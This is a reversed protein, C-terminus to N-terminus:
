KEPDATVKARAGVKSGSGSTSNNSGISGKKGTQTGAQSAFAVTGLSNLIKPAYHIALARVAPASSCILALNLETITWANIVLMTFGQADYNTYQELMALRYCSAVCAIAGLSFTLLALLRERPYLKLQFVLPMPLVWIVIDTFIWLAAIALQARKLDIRCVEWPHEWYRIHPCEVLWVIFASVTTGVVIFTTAYVSWRIYNWNTMRYYFLLLSLKITMMVWPYFVTLAYYAEISGSLNYWSKDYFAQWQTNIHDHYVALGGWAVTLAFGVVALWDFPQIGGAVKYRSWLRLAMILATVVTFTAFLPVVINPSAPHPLHPRISYAITLVTAGFNNPGDFLGILWDAQWETPGFIRSIDKATMNGQVEWAYDAYRKIVESTTEYKFNPSLNGIWLATSLVQRLDHGSIRYDAPLPPLADEPSPLSM